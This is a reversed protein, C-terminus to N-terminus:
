KPRALSFLMLDAKEVVGDVGGTRRLSPAPPDFFDRKPTDGIGDGTTVM